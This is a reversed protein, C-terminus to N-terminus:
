KQIMTMKKLLWPILDMLMKMKLKLFILCFMVLVQFINVVCVIFNMITRSTPQICYNWNLQPKICLFGAFELVRPSFFIPELKRVAWSSFPPLIPSYPPPTPSTIPASWLSLKGERQPRLTLEGDDPM